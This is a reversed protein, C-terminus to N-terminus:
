RPTTRRRRDIFENLDSVAYRISPKKEGAGVNVYPIQGSKKLEHLQRTCVGLIRAASRTDLLQETRQLDLRRAATSVNTLTFQPPLWAYRDSVTDSLTFRPTADKCSNQM